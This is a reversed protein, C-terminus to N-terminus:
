YMSEYSGVCVRIANDESVAATGRPLAKRVLISYMKVREEERACMSPFSPVMESVAKTFQSWQQGCRDFCDETPRHFVTVLSRVDSGFVPRRQLVRHNRKALSVARRRQRYLVDEM